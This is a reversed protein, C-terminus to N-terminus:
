ELETITREALDLAKRAKEAGGMKDIFWFALRLKEVATKANGKPSDDPSTAASVPNRQPTRSEERYESGEWYRKFSDRSEESMEPWSRIMDLAVMVGAAADDTIEHEKMKAWLRDHIFRKDVGLHNGIATCLDWRDKAQLSQVTSMIAGPLSPGPLLRGFSGPGIGPVDPLSSPRM